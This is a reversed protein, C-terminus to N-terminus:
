IIYMCSPQFGTINTEASLNSLQNRMSAILTEPVSSNNIEVFVVLVNPYDQHTAQSVSFSAELASEKM